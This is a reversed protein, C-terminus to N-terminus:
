PHGGEDHEVDDNLTSGAGADVLVSPLSREATTTCLFVDSCM